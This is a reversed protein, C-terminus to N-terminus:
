WKVTVTLNMPPQQQPFTSKRVYLNGIVASRQEVRIGKDDIENYLGTGPTTKALVFQVTKEM